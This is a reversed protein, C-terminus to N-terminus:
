ASGWVNVKKGDISAVRIPARPKVRIELEDLSRLAILAATTLWDVSESAVTGVVIVDRGPVRQKVPRSQDKM